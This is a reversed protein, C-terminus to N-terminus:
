HEALLRAVGDIRDPVGGRRLAAWFTALNSTVVPKGCDTELRQLVPLTAFDACSILIADADPRDVRRALRYAVEPPVRALYRFDERTEGIGLGEIALVDFGNATLFAREHDNVAPLYPTAVAIRRAGLARLAEVIAQATSVAPVGAMATMRAALEDLPCQMSSATCAYAVVDVSAERLFGIATELDAYLGDFGHALDLHLAMRTAHASVGDPALRAFEIEGITNNPPVIM